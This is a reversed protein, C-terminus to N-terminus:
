ISCAIKATANEAVTPHRAATAAAMAVLSRPDEAAGKATWNLAGPVYEKAILRARVKVSGRATASTEALVSGAATQKAVSAASGKTIRSSIPRVAFGM